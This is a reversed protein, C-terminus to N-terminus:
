LVNNLMETILRIIDGVRGTKQSLIGTLKITTASEILM